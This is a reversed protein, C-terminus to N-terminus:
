TCSLSLRKRGFRKWYMVWRDAWWQVTYMYDSISLAVKLLCYLLLFLYCLM